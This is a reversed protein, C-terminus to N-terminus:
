VDYSNSHDTRIRPSSCPFFWKLRSGGGFVDTLLAMKSKPPYKAEQNQVMEIATLDSFISRLQDVMICIIFLLYFCCLVLLFILHLRTTERQSTTRGINTSSSWNYFTLLLAHLCASGTYLLFLLFYKQNQEGVCNNIWPCHHDMKKICRRCVRCHHSRPPRFLECYKCTTWEDNSKGRKKRSSRRTESFDVSVEPIPVHGPDSFSAKFHSFVLLFVLTNFIVAHVTGWLNESLVPVVIYTLICYDIYTISSYTILFCLIGCPDVICKM